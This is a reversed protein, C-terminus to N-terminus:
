SALAFFREVAQRPFLKPWFPLRDGGKTIIFAGVANETVPTANAVEISAIDAYPVRITPGWRRYVFEAPSFTARFRLAFVIPLLPLCLTWLFPVLTNQSPSKILLYGTVLAPPSCLFAWLGVLAADPGYSAPQRM